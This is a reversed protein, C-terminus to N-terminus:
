SVTTAPRRSRTASSRSRCAAPEPRFDGSGAKSCATKGQRRRRTTSTCSRSRTATSRASTRGARARAFSTCRTSSSAAGSGASPTASTSQTLLPEDVRRLEHVRARAPRRERRRHRRLAAPQSDRRRAPDALVRGRHLDRRRHGDAVRAFEEAATRAAEDDILLPAVDTCVLERSRLMAAVDELRGGADVHHAITYVDLGIGPSGARAVADM